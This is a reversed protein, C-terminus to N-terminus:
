QAWAKRILLPVVGFVVVTASVVIVFSLAAQLLAYLWAPQQAPHVHPGYELEFGFVGFSVAVGIVMGVVAPGLLTQKTERNM